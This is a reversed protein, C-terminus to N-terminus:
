PREQRLRRDHGDLGGEAPPARSSVPEIERSPEIWAAQIGSGAAVTPCPGFPVMIAPEPAWPARGHAPPDEAPPDLEAFFRDAAAQGKGETGWVM